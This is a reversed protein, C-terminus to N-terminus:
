FNLQLNDIIFDAFEEDIGISEGDDSVGCILGKGVFEQGDISFTGIRDQAQNLRGEEDIWLDLDGNMAIREVMSCELSSYLSELGVKGSELSVKNMSEDRPDIEIMFLNKM